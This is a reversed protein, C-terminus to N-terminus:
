KLYKRRAMGMAGYTRRAAGHAMARAIKRRQCSHTVRLVKNASSTAPLPSNLPRGVIFWHEKPRQEEITKTLQYLIRDVCDEVSDDHEWNPDFFPSSLIDVEGQNNYVFGHDIKPEAM